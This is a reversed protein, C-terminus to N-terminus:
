HSTISTIQWCVKGRDAGGVGRGEGVTLAGSIFWSDREAAGFSQTEPRCLVNQFAARVTIFRRRWAGPAAAFCVSTLTNVSAVAGQTHTQTNIHFDLLLCLCWKIDSM